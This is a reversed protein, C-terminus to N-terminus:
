AAESFDALAFDARTEPAPSTQVLVDSVTLAEPIAFDNESRPALGFRCVIHPGTKERTVAFEIWQIFGQVSATGTAVESVTIVDGIERTLAQTMTSASQNAWFQISEIKDAPNAYQSTLYDATDRGVIIDDQYRLDIDKTRQGYDMAVEAETLDPTKDKIYRGRVQLLQKYATVTGTNEITLKTASAGHLSVTVDIDATIDTGTGDEADNFSYDTGAVLAQQDTAGMYDNSEDDRYQIWHEISEGAPIAMKGDTSGIVDTDVAGVEKAHTSVRFHNFVADTTTPRVLGTLTADTFAFQSIALTRSARSIYAHTGDGQEVYFGRASRVIDEIIGIADKGTGIDDLAFPYIDLAGDFDTASPQASAPVAALVATLLEVETQDLQPAIARIKADILKAITGAASCRVRPVMYQGPVPDISTLTGTWRTYDTSGDNYIIRVDAGRTFGALCNAHGPSYTGLGNAAGADSRLTFGASGADATCDDPGNGSIGRWWTLGEAAMLDASVDTWGATLNIEVRQTCTVSM